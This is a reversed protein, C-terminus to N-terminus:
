LDPQNFYSRYIREPVKKWVSPYIKKFNRLKNVPGDLECLMARNNLDRTANPFLLHSFLRSLVPYSDCGRELEEHPIILLLSDELAELNFGRTEYVTSDNFYVSNSIGLWVDSRPMPYQFIYGSVVGQLVVIFSDSCDFFTNVFVKSGAPIEAFLSHRFAYRLAHRHTNDIIPLFFKLFLKIEKLSKIKM